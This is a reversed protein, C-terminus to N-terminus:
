STPDMNAPMEVEYGNGRIAEHLNHETAQTEDYTVQAKQLAYNVSADSVGPIKLVQKMEYQARHM